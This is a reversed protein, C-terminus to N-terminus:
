NWELNRQLMEAPWQKEVLLFSNSTNVLKGAGAGPFSRATNLDNVETWTTGNM